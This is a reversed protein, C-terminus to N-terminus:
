VQSACPVEELGCVHEPVPTETRRYAMAWRGKGGEHTTRIQVTGLQMGGDLLVTIAHLFGAHCARTLAGAKEAGSLQAADTADRFTDVTVVKGPPLNQIAACLTRYAHDSM